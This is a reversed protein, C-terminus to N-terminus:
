AQTTGGPRSTGLIREDRCRFHAEVTDDFESVAQQGKEEDDNGDHHKQKDHSHALLTRLEEAERYSQAQSDRTLRHNTSHCDQGIQVGIHHTQMIQQRSHEHTQGSDEEVPDSAAWPTRTPTYWM